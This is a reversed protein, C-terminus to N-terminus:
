YVFVGRVSDNGLRSNANTRNTFNSGGDTSISLGGGNTGAYINGPIPTYFDLLKNCAPLGGVLVADGVQTSRKIFERRKM